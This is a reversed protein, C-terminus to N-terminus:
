AYSNDGYGKSYDLEKTGVEPGTLQLYGACSSLSIDYSGTTTPFALKKEM